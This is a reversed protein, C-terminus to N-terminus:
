LNGINHSSRERVCVFVCVDKRSPDSKAAKHMLSSAKQPIHVSFPNETQLVLVMKVNNVRERGQIRLEALM